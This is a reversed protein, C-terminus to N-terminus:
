RNKRRDKRAQQRKAKKAMSHRRNRIYERPDFACALQDYGWFLKQADM